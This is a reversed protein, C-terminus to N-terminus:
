TTYDIVYTHQGQTVYEDSSGIKIRVGRDVNETSFDVKDGDLTVKNIEFTVLKNKYQTPFDRYIGHQIEQGMANVTITEKVDMTADENVRMEIDYDLIEERDYYDYSDDYPANVKVNISM